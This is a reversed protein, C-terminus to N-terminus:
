IPSSKTRGAGAAAGNIEVGSSNNGSILNRDAPMPGGIVNSDADGEILVGNGGNGQDANGAVNTGIFNGAVIVNDAGDIHVGNGSFRNIVLGRIITGSGNSNIQLGDAGRRRRARWNLTGRVPLQDGTFTNPSSGSQSYGNIFM